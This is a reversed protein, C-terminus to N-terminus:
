GKIKKKFNEFEGETEKKPWSNNSTDVDATGLNPDITINVIEKDSAIAKSVENDNLRWIQAPYKIMKKSGDAYTYEVIIPM